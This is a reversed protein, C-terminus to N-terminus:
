LINQNHNTFPSNCQCYFRTHVKSILERVFHAMKLRSIENKNENKNKNKNKNKKSKLKRRANEKELLLEVDFGVVRSIFISNAITDSSTLNFFRLQTDIMKFRDGSIEKNIRSKEFLDYHYIFKNCKNRNQQLFKVVERVSVYGEPNMIKQTHDRFHVSLDYFSDYVVGCCEDVIEYADCKQHNKLLYCIQPLSKDTNNIHYGNSCFGEHRLSHTFAEKLLRREYVFWECGFYAIVKVDEILVLLPRKGCCNVSMLFKLVIGCVVFIGVFVAFRELFNFNFKM